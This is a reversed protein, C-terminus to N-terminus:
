EGAVYVQFGPSQVSAPLNLIIANDPAWSPAYGVVQFNIQSVGAVKYPAPGAYTVEFNTYTPGTPCPLPGVGPHCPEFAPIPSQVQVPLVVNNPLPLGILTGDAQSPTIPGLGTAWVAVISGVPAPNGASNITGDQNVAAAYVGDVTFVAPATQAVPWTLCNTNVNNYSACVETNQGPTLSWPAVANIQSDQVWLLPAPTGDFTVGVGEAQTPYPSQPTGQLQVGQQPGLGSGFLTVLEGPAIPGTALSAANTMCALPYTQANSNPSLHWLFSEEAMGAPFPGAQTPSFTMGATALVFVTSNPGTAVILPGGAPGPLGTAGPIYTAQLLSGDPAYVALLAFVASGCTAISNTVPIANPALGSIYANGAADVAFGAFYDHSAAPITQSLTEAGTSDFRLLEAQNTGNSGYVVANGAADVAVTVGNLLTTTAYFGASGDPALRGLFGSGAVFAAGSGDVAISSVAGPVWATYDVATGAANLRVVGSVQSNLGGISGAVYARGQPDVALTAPPGPTLFGGVPATWALGTGDASLKAVFISTDGVNATPILYVGGNPDVAMAAPVGAQYEVTFGLNQQWLITKGDPSLKTVCPYPSSTTTQSCTSLIHLAGSSDTAIQTVYAPLWESYDAGLLFGSSAAM